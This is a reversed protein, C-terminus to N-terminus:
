DTTIASAEREIVLGFYHASVLFLCVGLVASSYGVKTDFPPEFGPRLRGILQFLVILGAILTPLIAQIFNKSLIAEVYGVGVGVVSTYFLQMTDSGINEGRILLRSFLISCIAALLIPPLFLTVAAVLDGTHGFFDCVNIWIGAPSECKRM